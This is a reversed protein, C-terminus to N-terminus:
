IKVKVIRNYIIHRYAAQKFLILDILIVAYECEVYKDVVQNCKTKFYHFLFPISILRFLSLKVHNRVFLHWEIVCQVIDIFGDKYIKYICDISHSCEICIPRTNNFKIKLKNIM